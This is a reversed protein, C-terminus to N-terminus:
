FPIDDDFPADDVGAPETQRTRPEATRPAPASDDRRDLFQVREAIVNTFYKELGDRGTSKSYKVTGEILAMSGKRLYQQCAEAQKGYVRVSHWQTEERQQGDRDKYSDTTALSFDCVTTGRQTASVKPDKGLNGLLYIKNMGRM